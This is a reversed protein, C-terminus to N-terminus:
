INNKSILKKLNKIKNKDKVFVLKSNFNEVFSLFQKKIKNEYEHNWAIMHILNVLGEKKNNDKKIKKMIFRKIIRYDRIISNSQIFIIFDCEAFIKELWEFYTGEIIWNTNNSLFFLLNENRKDTTVEKYNDDWVINDLELLQLNYEESIKNSLFTKGSGPGGTIYIKMKM